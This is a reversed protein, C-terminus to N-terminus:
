EHKIWNKAESLTDFFRENSSGVAKDLEEMRYTDHHVHAVKM